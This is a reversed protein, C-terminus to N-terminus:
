EWSSQSDVYGGYAKNADELSKLLLAIKAKHVEIAEPVDFARSALMNTSIFPKKGQRTQDIHWHGWAEWYDLRQPSVGLDCYGTDISTMLSDDRHAGFSLPEKIRMVKKRGFIVKLRAIYESDAGTRVCDWIGAYKLVKDKRFMLSSPNQRMLPHVPRAYYEGHDSLRVWSSITAVLRHSKLLPKVQKEIKLPHSWDDSDHCTVFEGKAQLLAINKAVYTGVNQELSILRVRKDKQSWAKVIEVTDDSSADDVVILELNQYRQALISAIAVDARQGTNYTTMIITVQPGHVIDAKMNCEINLTSLSATRSKLRLKPLKFALLYKNLLTLQEQPRLGQTSNAYYLLLEPSNRYEKRKLVEALLSHAEERKGLKLFLATQLTLPIDVKELVRSATKPMFPILADALRIYLSICDNKQLFLELTQKAKKFDGCAAFSITKAALGKCQLGFDSVKIITKYLGLNYYAWCLEDNSINKKDQLALFVTFLNKRFLRRSFLKKTM